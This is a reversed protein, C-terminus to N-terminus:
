TVTLRVAPDGIIAYGRADNNAIWIEALKEDNPIRNTQRIADLEQTLITSLEAYRGNFFEMAAGLPVGDLLQLLASEFVDTQPGANPWQFSYGWAREVHGVFALAGGKPHGLMRRPLGAVFAHPAIPAVEEFAHHAFDDLRPTGAGFCAFHVGILGLLDADEGIDDAAMYFDQPIPGSHEVPGPWDQCLLAGQQSLLRPDDLPFGMGHSASFLLAPTEAGGLLGTLRAKTAQGPGDLTDVIWQDRKDATAKALPLVLDRHSM